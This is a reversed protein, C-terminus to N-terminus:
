SWGDCSWGSLETLLALVKTRIEDSIPCEDLTDIILFVQGSLKLVSQLEVKLDDM